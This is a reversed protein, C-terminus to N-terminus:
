SIKICKYKEMLRFTSTTKRLRGVKLQLEKRWNDVTFTSKSINCTPCSPNLNDIDNTGKVIGYQLLEKNSSKRYLPTIHDVHWNDKTLRCGCYACKGKYKKFVILRKKDSILKAM